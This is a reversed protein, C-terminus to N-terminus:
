EIAEIHNNKQALQRSPETTLANPKYGSNVTSSSIDSAEIESSGYRKNRCDDNCDYGTYSNEAALDRICAGTELAHIYINIILIVEAMILSIVLPFSLFKNLNRFMLNIRRITRIHRKLKTELTGNLIKSQSAAILDNKMGSYVGQLIQTTLALQHLYNFIITTQIITDVSHMSRPIVSSNIGHTSFFVFLSLIVNGISFRVFLYKRNSRSVLEEKDFLSKNESIESSLNLVTLFYRAKLLIALYLLVTYFAIIEKTILLLCSTSDSACIDSTHYFSWILSVIMYVVFLYIWWRTDMREFHPKGKYSKSSHDCYGRYPILWSSSQLCPKVLCVLCNEVERIRFHKRLFYM